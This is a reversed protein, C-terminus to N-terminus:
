QVHSSRQDTAQLVARYAATVGDAYKRVSFMDRVRQRGRRGMQKAKEGDRLLRMMAMALADPKRPPVLLGTEGDIVIEPVGGASTAVVPKGMAMAEVLTKGFPEKDSPLVLLDIATLVEPIDDRFGSFVFHRALGLDAIQRKVRRLYGPNESTADDGVILFRLHPAQGVLQAAAQVLYHLGKEEHIRGVQGVVVCGGDLGFQEKVARGSCKANFRDLEIPPYVLALKSAIRPDDQYPEGIARSNIIVKKAMHRFIWRLMVDILKHSPFDHHEVIVPIGVLRSALAGYLHARTTHTHILDIENRRAIAALWVSSICTEALYSILRIPNRTDALENMHVFKTEVHNELEKIKNFFLGEGPLALIPYYQNADLVRLLSLLTTEAGGVGAFGNILLIRIRGPSNRDAM